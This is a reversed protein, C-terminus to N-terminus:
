SRELPLNPRWWQGGQTPKGEVIAQCMHVGRLKLVTENHQTHDYRSSRRSLLGGFCGSVHIQHSFRSETSARCRPGRSNTMYAVPMIKVELILQLCVHGVRM